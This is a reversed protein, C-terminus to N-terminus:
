KAQLFNGAEEAGFLVLEIEDGPLFEAAVAPLPMSGLWNTM